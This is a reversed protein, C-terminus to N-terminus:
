AALSEPPPTLGFARLWTVADADTASRQFLMTRGDFDIIQVVYGGHVSPELRVVDIDRKNIRM